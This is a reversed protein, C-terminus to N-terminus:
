IVCVCGGEPMLVLVMTCVGKMQQRKPNRVCETVRVFTLFLVVDM